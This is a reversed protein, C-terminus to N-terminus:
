LCSHNRGTCRHVQHGEQQLRGSQNQLPPGRSDRANPGAEPKTMRSLSNWRVSMEKWSLVSMTTSFQRNWPPCPPMWNWRDAPTTVLQSNVSKLEKQTPAMPPESTYWIWCYIALLSHVSPCPVRPSSTADLEWTNMSSQIKSPSYQEMRGRSWHRGSRGHNGYRSSCHNTCGSCSSARDASPSPGSPSSSPSKQDRFDDGLADQVVVVVLVKPEEDLELGEGALRQGLLLRGQVPELGHESLFHSGSIVRAEVRGAMRTRSARSAAAGPEPGPPRHPWRAPPPTVVAPVVRGDLRSHIGRCRPIGDQDPRPLVRLVLM